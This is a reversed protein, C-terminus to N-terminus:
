PAPPLNKQWFRGTWVGDIDYANMWCFEGGWGMNCRFLRHWGYPQYPSGTLEYRWKKYGYALMYHWLEYYLAIGPRGAKIAEVLKIGSEDWDDSIVDAEWHRDYGILPGGAGIGNGFISSAQLDIYDEFAAGLNEPPTAGADSFPDCIVDCADHWWHYNARLYSRTLYDGEAMDLPADSTRLSTILADTSAGRQFYLNTVAKKTDWWSFLMQLAVPGCGVADCWRSDTMSQSYKPQDAKSGAKWTKSVLVTGVPGGRPTRAGPDVIKLMQRLATGDSRRLTLRWGGPVQGTINVGLAPLTIAAARVREDEDDLVYETFREDTLATVRQGVNIEITPAAGKAALRDFELLQLRQTRRAALYESTLFAIRFAEYTAFHPPEPQPDFGRLSQPNDSSSSRSIRVAHARYEADTRLVPHSGLSGVSHGNEDEAAIFTPAFRVIRSVAAGGCRALLLESMTPGDTKFQVVPPLEDSVGILLYGRDCSRVHEPSALVGARAAPRPALIKLELADPKGSTNWPSFVPVAFPSITVGDWDAAEEDGGVGGRIGDLHDQALRQVGSDLSSFPVAPLSAAAGGEDIGLRFFKHAASSVIKVSGDAAVAMAEPPVPTWPGTLADSWLYRLQVVTDAACLPGAFGLTWAALWACSRNLLSPFKFQTKM